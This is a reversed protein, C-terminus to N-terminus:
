RKERLAVWRVRLFPRMWPPYVALLYPEYEHGKLPDRIRYGAFDPDQIRWWLFHVRSEYLQSVAEQEM